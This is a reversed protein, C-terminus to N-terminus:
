WTRVGRMMPNLTRYQERYLICIRLVFYIAHPVATTTGTHLESMERCVAFVLNSSAVAQLISVHVFQGTSGSLRLPAAVNYCNIPKSARFLMLESLINPNAALRSKIMTTLSASAGVDLYSCFFFFTSYAGGSYLDALLGSTKNTENWRLVRCSVCM